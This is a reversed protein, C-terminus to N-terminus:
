DLLIIRVVIRQACIDRGGNAHAGADEKPGAQVDAHWRRSQFGGLYPIIAHRFLTYSRTPTRQWCLPRLIFHIVRSFTLTSLTAQGQSMLFNTSGSASNTKRGWVVSQALM